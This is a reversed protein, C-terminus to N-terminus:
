FAVVGSVGAALLLAWLMQRRHTNTEQGMKM